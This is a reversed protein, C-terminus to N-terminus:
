TWNCTNKKISILGDPMAKAFAQPLLPQTEKGNTLRSITIQSYKRFDLGHCFFDDKVKAIIQLISLAIMYLQATKPFQPQHSPIMTM